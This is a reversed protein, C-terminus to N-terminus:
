EAQFARKRSVSMKRKYKIIKMEIKKANIYDPHDLWNYSYLGTMKYDEGINQTINQEIKYKMISELARNPDNIIDIGKRFIAKIGKKKFKPVCRKM